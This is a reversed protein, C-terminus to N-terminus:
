LYYRKYRKLLNMATQYNTIGGNDHSVQYNGIRESKVTGQPTLAGASLVTAVFEIDAPVSEFGWEGVVKVNQHGSTFLGNYILQFYPTAIPYPLIKDTIDEFNEGYEDGLEVATFSLLDDILLSNYGSGDFYRTEAVKNFSRNTYGDIYSDISSIVSNVQETTQSLSKGLYAEIKEKTTYM